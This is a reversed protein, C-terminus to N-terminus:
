FLIFTLVKIINFYWIWKKFTKKKLSGFWAADRYINDEFVNSSMYCLSCYCRYTENVTSHSFPWHYARVLLHWVPINALVSSGCAEVCPLWAFVASPFFSCAVIPTHPLIRSTNLGCTSLLVWHQCFDTITTMAAPRPLLCTPSRQSTAIAQKKTRRTTRHTHESHFLWQSVDLDQAVKQM